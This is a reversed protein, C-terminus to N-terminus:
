NDPTQKHLYSSWDSWNSNSAEEKARVCLRYNKDQMRKKVTFKKDNSTTIKNKHGDKECPDKPDIAKVQYLLQFYSNPNSWTEPCDWEFTHDGVKKIIMKDPKVIDSIFFHRQYQECRFESRFYFFLDIKCPEETFPCHKGDECSLTNGNAGLSCTINGSDGSVRAIAFHFLEAYQREKDFTWSCQFKGDFNKATCSIYESSNNEVLISKRYGIGEQLVLTHNLIDGAKNHCSYNGGKFYKVTIQIQNGHEKLPNGNLKWSIDGDNHDGCILNINVSMNETVPLLLVNPPLYTATPECSKYYTLFLIIVSIFKMKIHKYFSM